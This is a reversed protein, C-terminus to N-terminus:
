EERPPQPEETPALLDKDTAHLATRLRVYNGPRMRRRAGTELKRLYSATIGVQAALQTVEIGARMRRTRIATGNVEFTAPQHM